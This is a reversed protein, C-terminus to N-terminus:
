YSIAIYYNKYKRLRINSIKFTDINKFGYSIGYGIKKSFSEKKTWIITFEKDTKAMDQEKQNFCKELVRKKYTIRQIDVGIENNSVVCVTINKSHSINVYLPNGKLYPKGYENYIIDKKQHYKYLVKTLMKDSSINKGIYLKYM